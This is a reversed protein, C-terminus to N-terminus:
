MEKEYENGIWLLAVFNILGLIILQYFDFSGIEISGTWTWYLGASFVACFVGVLLCFLAHLVTRNM